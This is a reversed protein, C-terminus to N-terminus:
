DEFKTNLEDLLKNIRDKTSIKVGSAYKHGGGGFNQAIDNIVIKNSRISLHYFNTDPNFSIGVWIDIGDIGALTNVFEKAKGFEVGYGKYTEEELIYYAVKGHMKFNDLIYGSLRVENLSRSYLTGYVKDLDAGSALLHSACAFVDCTTNDHLFRGTDGIIGSYLYTAADKSLDLKCEESFKCIFQSTAALKTDVYNYDGYQETVPHHDIKLALSAKKYRKDDIRMINGTDLVFALSQEVIKDDCEDMYPYLVGSLSEVNQGLAYVKKDPFNTEIIEKLGFQSGLADPDAFEHRFITIVDYKKIFNYIEKYM